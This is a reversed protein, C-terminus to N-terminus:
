CSIQWQLDEVSISSCDVITKPLKGAERRCGGQWCIEELDKGTSVM